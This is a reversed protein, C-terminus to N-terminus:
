LLRLVQLHHVFKSDCNSVTIITKNYLCMVLRRHNQEATLQNGLLWNLHIYLYCSKKGPIAKLCAHIVDNLLDKEFNIFLSKNPLKYLSAM